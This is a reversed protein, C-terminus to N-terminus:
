LFCMWRFTVFSEDTDSARSCNQCTRNATRLKVFIRYWGILPAFTPLKISDIAMLLVDIGQHLKAPANWLGSLMKLIGFARRAVPIGNKKKRRDKDAIGMQLYGSNGDLTFLISLGGLFQSCNNRTWIFQSDWIIVSNLKSFRRSGTLFWGKEIRVRIVRGM